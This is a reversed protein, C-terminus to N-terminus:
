TLRRLVLFTYPDDGAVREERVTRFLAPDFEPFLVDGAAERDLISLCLTQALPLAEQYIQGGGAIFVREEGRCLALGEALSAALLCGPARYDEQRSIVVTKRGPLARGISAFTKRGMILTHGMTLAKFRQLEEPIHWPLRGQSGIVRNRALAAILVIEM